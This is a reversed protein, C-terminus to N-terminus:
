PWAMWRQGGGAVRDTFTRFPPRYTLGDVAAGGGAHDLSAADDRERRQDDGVRLGATRPAPRHTDRGAGTDGTHAGPRAGPPVIAWRTLPIPVLGALLGALFGFGLALAFDIVYQAIRRAVM